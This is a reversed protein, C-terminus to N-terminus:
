YGSRMGGGKPTVITIATDLLERSELYECQILTPLDAGGNRGISSFVAPAHITRAQRNPDRLDPPPGFASM